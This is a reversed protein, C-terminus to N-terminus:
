GRWHGRVALADVMNINQAACRPRQIDVDGSTQPPSHPLVFLVCETCEGGFVVDRPQEVELSKLINSRCNRALLLELAPAPLLFDREDLFVIGVPNIATALPVNFPSKAQYCWTRRPPLPGEVGPSRAEM